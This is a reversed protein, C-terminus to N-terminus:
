EVPELFLKLDLKPLKSHPISDQPLCLSNLINQCIQAEKTLNQQKYFHLVAKIAQEKSGPSSSQGFNQEIGVLNSGDKSEEKTANLKFAVFLKLDVIGKMRDVSDFLKFAKASMKLAREINEHPGKLSYIYAVSKYLNALCLNSMETRKKYLKYMKLADSENNMLILINIYYLVIKEENNLGEKARSSSPENILLELNQTDLSNMSSLDSDTIEDVEFDINEKSPLIQSLVCGFSARNESLPFTREEFQPEVRRFKKKFDISRYICAWINPEMETLKQKTRLTKKDDYIERCFQELVECSKEHFEAKAQPNEELFECARITIFPLLSYIFEGRSNTKYVILSAKALDDKPSIWSTSGWIQTIYKQNIGGPFMGLMMFLDIAKPNCSQVTSINLELANRLADSANKDSRTIKNPSLVSSDSLNNFLETLSKYQLLPAALSIAQPHGGLLLFLPHNVLSPSANTFPSSNSKTSSLLEKMEEELIKRPAKELLCLLSEESTLSQLPFQMEKTNSKLELAKRSTLLFKVESCEDLIKEIESTFNIEDSGIPDECNDLIILIQKNKLFHHVLMRDEIDSDNTKNEEIETEAETRIILSLNALFMQSSECGRLGVYIIGDRFRQRHKLHDAINRALTTKGIGSLGLISVLRNKSLHDIIDYMEKQRGVFNDIKSPVSLISPKNGLNVLGGPIISTVAQCRHKSTKPTNSNKKRTEQPILLIFKYAEVSKFMKNVEEKAFHFSACVTYNKVFLTEYFVRSFCLSAKDAIEESQKICIVHKAGANLFVEGAFESHCSSVFVVELNIQAREIMKKLETEYLYHSMCQEDELLLINGKHKNNIYELGIDKKTNQIGHGSFHLAIPGDTLVSRMNSPTAVVSKYKLEYKMQNCANVIDKIETQCDLQMINETKGNFRRILPSAFMFALHLRSNTMDIPVVNGDSKLRQIHLDRVRIANLALRLKERYQDNKKVIELYEMVSQASQITKLSEGIDLKLESKKTLSSKTRKMKQELEDAQNSKNLEEHNVFEDLYTVTKGKTEEQGQLSEEIVVKAEEKIEQKVEEKVQSTPKGEDLDDFLMDDLSMDSLGAFDIGKAPLPAEQPLDFVVKNGESNEPLIPISRNKDENHESPNTQKNELDKILLDFNKSNLAKLGVILKKIDLKMPEGPLDKQKVTLIGNQHFELEANKAMSEQHLSTFFKQGLEQLSLIKVGSLLKQDLGDQIDQLYDERLQPHLDFDANEIDGGTDSPYKQGEKQEEKSRLRRQFYKADESSSVMQCFTKHINLIRLQSVRKMGESSRADLTMNERMMVISRKICPLDMLEKIMKRWISVEEAQEEKFSGM